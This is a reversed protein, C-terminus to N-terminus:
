RIPPGRLAAFSIIFPSTIRIEPQLYDCYITTIGRFLWTWLFLSKNNKRDEIMDRTTDWDVLTKAIFLPTDSMLQMLEQFDKGRRWHISHQRIAEFTDKQLGILYTGGDITPGLANRGEELANWASKLISTTLCPIDGGITLVHSYGKDFIDSVANWLRDQFSQGRQHRDDIIYFPIDLEHCVSKVHRAIKHHLRVNERHSPLWSKDLSAVLPRECFLLLATSHEREVM